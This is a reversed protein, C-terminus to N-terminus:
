AASAHPKFAAASYQAGFPVSTLLREAPRLLSLARPFFLHYRVHARRWGATVLRETMQGARILHANEDFACNRVARVTLPNLPNHEFIAVLGGPRTVRLLETLWHVHDDHDIHHFVCASFGVDFADDDAPIREGTMLRADFAEGHRERARDLSRQSVDVGTLASGPFCRRFASVSNGIGCGFDLIRGAGEDLQSRVLEAVANVKYEAFYDPAEGTLGIVKRHDRDYDEAFRDFEAQKM